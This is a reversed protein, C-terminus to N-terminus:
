LMPRLFGGIVVAGQPVEESANEPVPWIAARGFMRGDDGTIPTLSPRFSANASGASKRIWWPTNSPLRKCFIDEDVTKWDNASLATVPPQENEIVIVSVDLCPATRVCTQVFSLPADDRIGCLLGSLPSEDKLWVRVRTGADQIYEAAVAKRMLPREALGNTFELVLTDTKAADYRQTVIQVKDGWMFVSFFGIGYRGVANFGKSDLGPLETHM